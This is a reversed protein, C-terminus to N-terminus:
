AGEGGVDLNGDEDWVNRVPGGCDPSTGQPTEAAQGTARALRAKRPRAAAQRRNTRCLYCVWGHDATYGWDHTRAHDLSEWRHCVKCTVKPGEEPPASRWPADIRLDHSMDPVLTEATGSYTPQNTWPDPAPLIFTPSPAPNRRRADELDLAARIAAADAEGGEVEPQQWICETTNDIVLRGGGDFAHWALDLNVYGGSPLKVITAM